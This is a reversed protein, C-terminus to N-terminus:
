RKILKSAKITRGSDLDILEMLYIDGPLGSADVEPISTGDQLGLDRRLMVKGMLNRLRLEIRCPKVIPLRLKFVNVFPNPYVLLDSEDLHLPKDTSTKDSTTKLRLSFRHEGYSEPLDTNMEFLHVQDAQLVRATNLYNDVLTLETGRALSEVGSIQLEYKGTSYGKVYLPIELMRRGPQRRADVSLKTGGTAVSSISVYGTGLATADQDDVDNQGDPSLLLTFQQEFVSSVLKLTLKSIGATASVAQNASLSSAAAAASASAVAKNKLSLEQQQQADIYKALAAETDLRMVGTSGIVKASESFGLSGSDHGTLVKVFFGEGANILTNPDNSVDYANNLANFKWVYPSLNEKNLASWSIAAAYPNGLLNFGDGSEGMNRNQVQVQLSGQFLLGRHNILFSEPRQFPASLIQQTFADPVLRDGRSFVYIGRGVDVTAQMASIGVYKQSLAGIISQNHTYITHGNQPSDDFGNRAGGPGTVFMAAKWDYLHHYYFGAASGHYVPASLLRWNRATAPAPFGGAIYQEVTVEGVVVADGASGLPWLFAQKGPGSNKLTLYGNSRLQGMTVRVHGLVDLSQELQLIASRSPKDLLLDNVLMRGNGTVQQMASAGSFALSGGAADASSTILGDNLLKGDLQLRVGNGINLKGGAEVQTECLVEIDQQLFLQADGKLTLKNLSLAATNAYEAKSGSDLLVQEFNGPVEHSNWNAPESWNQNLTNSFVMGTVILLANKEEAAVVYFAAPDRQNTYSSALWEVNPNITQIRLEDILGSFLQGQQKNSGVILSGGARLSTNGLGLIYSKGDILLERRGQYSQSVVHYWRNPVLQLSARRSTSISFSRTEQVLRGDAGLKLVYGGVDASDTSLIVQERDTVAFKIWCSILFNSSNIRGSTLYQTTGNLAIANGIKGPVVNSANMSAAPVLREDEMGNAANVLPTGAAGPNMHWIRDQDGNWTQQAEAAAPFHITNSGYYLYIQTASTNSGAAAVNSLRVWSVLRGTAPVYEDLQYRLPTQPANITTFAFDRGKTGSIKNGTCDGAVYKLDPHELAVLLQFDQLDVNGAVMTKNITIKKRYNYGPLWAQAHLQLGCLLSLFNLLATLVLVRSLESM